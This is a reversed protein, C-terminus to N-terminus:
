ARRFPNQSGHVGRFQYLAGVLGTRLQHGGAGRKFHLLDRVQTPLDVGVLVGKAAQGIQDVGAAGM